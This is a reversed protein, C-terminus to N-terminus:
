HTKPRSNSHKWNYGAESLGADPDFVGAVILSMMM